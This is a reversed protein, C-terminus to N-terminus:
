GGWDMGLGAGVARWTIFSLCHAYQEPQPLMVHPIQRPAPASAPPPPPAAASAEVVHGPQSPTPETEHTLQLPVPRMVGSKRSLRRERSGSVSISSM